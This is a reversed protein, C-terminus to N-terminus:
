KKWQLFVDWYKEKTMESWHIIYYRYQLTQFQCFLTLVVLLSVVSIKVPKMKIGDLLYFLLLAFVPLYEIIVRTGFSGGYFWMWWSSLVYILGTLFVAAFLGRFRDKKWLFYIGGLSVLTVPLYVFLGKKYSFLFNFLEPHLFHFGEESYTDIFFSGTSLKYLMLQVFVPLAILLLCLFLMLPERLLAAKKKLLPLFGKAEFLLWAAVLVNVPRLIAILGFALCAMAAHKRNATDIWSKGYFLFLSVMAFSYVHSMCPEVISYYFLNTGFYIVALIFASQGENAGHARLFKRLFVLGTGLYFLAGIGTFIVYWKSYGDAPDGSLLTMAHGALFFPAQLVAVGCFYKDTVKGNVGTRYDYKTHEDYYNSEITDFFSFNLDHYIFIAPLYAYYGKGDSTIVYKRHQAGWNVNATVWVSVLLILPVTFRSLATSIKKM